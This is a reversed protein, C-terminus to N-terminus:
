RAVAEDQLRLDGVLERAVAGSDDPERAVVGGGDLERTVVGGTTRAEIRYLHVLVVDCGNHRERGVLGCTTHRPLLLLPM